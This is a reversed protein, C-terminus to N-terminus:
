VPLCIAAILVLLAGLVALAWDPLSPIAVPPAPRNIVSEIWERYAYVLNGGGGTGFVGATTPGGQFSLVFTNVAALEPTGNVVFAPSGSDGSALTTEISNGLSAGGLYNAAGGGDFDFYYLAKRGSGDVDLDFMDASNNGKRKITPSAGITVGVSGQGSAGYGVMTLRTGSAIDASHLGYIPVGAPLEQALEVLAIDHQLNPNNFSVFAPHIFVEAAPIQHTLDGGFNLNFHISSVAAGQVVHAATLVYRTGIATASFASGGVSLSGVGAWLSDTSNADVRAAPTDPPAGALIALSPAPHALVLLLVGISRALWRM